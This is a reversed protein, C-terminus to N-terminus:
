ASKRIAQEQQQERLARDLEEALAMLKKPDSERSAEEAIEQWPRKPDNNQTSM